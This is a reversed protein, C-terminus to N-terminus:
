DAFKQKYELSLANLNIQNHISGNVSYYVGIKVAGTFPKPYRLFETSKSKFILRQRAPALLNAM